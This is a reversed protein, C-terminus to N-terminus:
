GHALPVYVARMGALIPGRMSRLRDAADAIDEPQRSPPCDAATRRSSSVIALVILTGVLYVGGVTM